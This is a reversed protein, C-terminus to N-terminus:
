RRRASSRRRWARAASSTGSRTRTCGRRARLAVAVVGDLREQALADAVALLEGAREGRHGAREADRGPDGDAERGPESCASPVGSPARCSRGRRAPPRTRRARSPATRASARARRARRRPSCRRRRRGLVLRAGAGPSPSPSAVGGAVAAAVSGGLRDRASRRDRAPRDGAGGARGTAGVTRRARGRRQPPRRDDDSSTSPRAPAAARARGGSAGAGGSRRRRGALDAVQPSPREAGDLGRAAADVRRQGRDLLGPRGRRPQRDGGARQLRQGRHGGRRGVRRGVLHGLQDCGGIAPSGPGRRQHRWTSRM